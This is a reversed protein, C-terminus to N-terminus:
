TILAHALWEGGERSGEEEEEAIVDTAYLAHLQALLPSTRHARSTCGDAIVDSSDDDDDDDTYERRWGGPLADNRDILSM